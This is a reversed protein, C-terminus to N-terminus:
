AGKHIGLLYFFKNSQATASLLDSECNAVKRLKATIDFVVNGVGGVSYAIGENSYIPTNEIDVLNGSSILVNSTGNDSYNQSACISSFLSLLIALLKHFRKIKIM